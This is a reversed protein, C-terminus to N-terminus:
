KNPVPYEASFYTSLAKILNTQSENFLIPTICFAMSCEIPPNM